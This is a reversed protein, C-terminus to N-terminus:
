AGRCWRRWMDRYAADVARTYADADGVPSALFRGRLGRRLEALGRVDGAREAAVAVYADVDPAAWDHLGVASLIAASVRGAPSRGLLAVTPVGMFLTECTTVGGNTPFTDLAIDIEAFAALHDQRSTGGRFVLRDPGIGLRAFEARFLDRTSAVDFARDKFLLRSGPVAAVLRAWTAMAVASIKSARNFCGFTVQGTALAPTPAVDPADGPPVSVVVCPLDYIREPFLPRVDEPIFVPDALFYDIERLGTGVAHGWATVQVPAPKRLFTTLHNGETHGSLDILIDIRDARIQRALVDPAVGVTSRWGSALLRFSRTTEDERAVGSYCFIEFRSRDHRQLILEFIHAASHACFDSSVYGLRLIREPDRVNEHPAPVPLGRRQAEAWRRREAQHAAFDMEPLFDALYILNSHAIAYTPRIALARRYSGAAAAPLALSMQSAALNLFTEAVSPDVALSGRHSAVAEEFRGLTQLACGRAMLGKATRPVTSLLREVQVGARKERPALAANLRLIPVEEHDPRLALVRDYCAVAREYFHLTQLTLACGQWAEAFQPDIALARFYGAMAESRRGLKGLIEALNYRDDPNAPALMVARRAFPLAEDFREKLFGDAYLAQMAPHSTPEAAITRRVAPTGIM